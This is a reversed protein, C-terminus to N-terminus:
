DLEKLDTYFSREPLKHSVEKTAQQEQLIGPKKQLGALSQTGVVQQADQGRVEGGSIRCRM